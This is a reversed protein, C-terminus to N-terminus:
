SQNPLYRIHAAESPRAEARVMQAQEKVVQSHAITLGFNIGGRCLASSCNDSSPIPGGFAVNSTAKVRSRNTRRHGYLTM